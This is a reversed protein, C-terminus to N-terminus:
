RLQFTSPILTGPQMFIPCFQLCLITRYCEVKATLIYALSLSVSRRFCSKPHSLHVVLRAFIFLGPSSPGVHPM